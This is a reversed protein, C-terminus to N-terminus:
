PLKPLNEKKTYESSFVEFRADQRCSNLTRPDQRTDPQYEGTVLNRLLKPYNRCTKMKPTKPQFSWFARRARFQEHLTRPDQKTDPQYEGAVLHPLLKPCSRCTKKKPTNPASLKLIRTKGSAAWLGKRTTDPVGVWRDRCPGWNSLLGSTVVAARPISGLAERM